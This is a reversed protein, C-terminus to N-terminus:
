KVARELLEDIGNECYHRGTKRNTHMKKELILLKLEPIEKNGGYNKSRQLTCHVTESSRAKDQVHKSDSNCFNQVFASM